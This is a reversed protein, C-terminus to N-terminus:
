AEIGHEAVSAVVPDFATLPGVQQLAVVAIGEAGAGQDAMVHQDTIAVVVVVGFRAVVDHEAGRPHVLAPTGQTEVPHGIGVGPFDHVGVQFDVDKKGGIQGDIQEIAEQFHFSEGAPVAVVDELAAEQRVGEGFPVM